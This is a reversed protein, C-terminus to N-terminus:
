FILRDKSEVGFNKIIKNKLDETNFSLFATGCFKNSTGDVMKAELAQM